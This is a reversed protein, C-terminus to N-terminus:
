PRRLSPCLNTDGQLPSLARRPPYPTRVGRQRKFGTNSAPDTCSGVVLRVAPGGGKFLASIITPHDDQPRDGKGQLSPCNSTDGQLPSLARKRTLPECVQYVVLFVCEEM